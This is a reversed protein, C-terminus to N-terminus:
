KSKSKVVKFKAQTSMNWKEGTTLYVTFDKGKLDFVIEKVISPM